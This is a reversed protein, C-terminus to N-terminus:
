PFKEKMFCLVELVKDDDSIQHNIGFTRNNMDDSPLDDLPISLFPLDDHIGSLNVNARALPSSYENISSIANTDNDLWDDSLQPLPRLAYNQAM